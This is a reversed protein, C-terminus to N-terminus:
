VALAAAAARGPQPRHQWRVEAGGCPARERRALVLESVVVARAGAFRAWLLMILGIPGAGLIALRPQEQKAM